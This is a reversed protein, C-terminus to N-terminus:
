DASLISGQDAARDSPVRGFEKLAMECDLCVPRKQRYETRCFPCYFAATQDQREPADLIEPLSIDCDDLLGQLMEKKLRWFERWDPRQIENEYHDSLLIEKRALELFSTRPLFCAALPLYNFRFYLDKTLYNVVHAANVPSLILSFIVSSRLDNEFRYLKKLIPLADLL